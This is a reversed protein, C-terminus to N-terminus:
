CETKLIYKSIYKLQEAYTLNEFSKGELDVHSQMIDSRSAKRMTSKNELIGIIPYQGYIDEVSYMYLIRSNTGSIQKAVDYYKSAVLNSKISYSPAAEKIIESVYYLADKSLRSSVYVGRKLADETYNIAHTDLEEKIDSKIISKVRIKDEETVSTNMLKSDANLEKWTNEVINSLNAGLENDIFMNDALNDSEAQNVRIFKIKNTNVQKTTYNASNLIMYPFDESFTTFRETKKLNAYAINSNTKGTTHLYITKDDREVIRLLEKQKGAVLYKITNDEFITVNRAFDEKAEIAATYLKGLTPSLKAVDFKVLGKEDSFKGLKKAIAYHMADKHVPNARVIESTKLFDTFFQEKIDIPLITSVTKAGFRHGEELDLYRVLEWQFQSYDSTPNEKYQLVPVKSEQTPEWVFSNLAKFGLTMTQMEGSDSGLKNHLELRGSPSVTLGGMLKDLYPNKGKIDNIAYFKKVDLFKNVIIQKFATTGSVNDEVIPDFIEYTNMPNDLKDDAYTTASAIYLIIENRVQEALEVKNFETVQKLEISLTDILGDFEKSYRLLNEKIQYDAMYYAQIASALHPVNDLIGHLQFIFDEQIPMNKIDELTPYRDEPLTSTDFVEDIGADLRVFEVPAVKLKKISGLVRSFSSVGDAITQAYQIARFVQTMVEKARKGHEEDSLIDSINRDKLADQDAQISLLFDLDEETFVPESKAVEETIGLSEATIKYASKRPSFAVLRGIPLQFMKLATLQNFGLMRLGLYPMVTNITLNAVGALNENINDVFIQLLSDNGSLISKGPIVKGAADLEFEQFSDYVHNNFNIGKLERTKEEGNSDTYTTKNNINLNHWAYSLGKTFAATVEIGRAGVIALESARLNDGILSLDLDQRLIELPEERGPFKNSAVEIMDLEIQKASISELAFETNKALVQVFQELIDNRYYIALLEDLKRFDDRLLVLSEQLDSSKPDLALATEAEKIKFETDVLRKSLEEAVKENHTLVEVKEGEYEQETQTYDFLSERSLDLTITDLKLIPQVAKEQAKLNSYETKSPLNKTEGLLYNYSKKLEGYIDNGPIAIKSNILSTMFIKGKQAQSRYRGELLSIELSLEKYEESNEDEILALAEKKNTIDTNLVETTRKAESEEIGNHMKDAIINIDNLKSVLKRSDEKVRRLVESKQEKLNKIETLEKSFYMPKELWSRRGIYLSDVDFDQGMIILYERPTIVINSNLRDEYFGTVQFVSSNHLGSSPIRWGVMDGHKFIPTREGKKLQAKIQKEIHSPLLGHPVMVEATPVGDIGRRVTLQRRKSAIEDVMAQNLGYDEPNVNVGDDLEKSLQTFDFGKRKVRNKLHPSVGTFRTGLDSQVILDTGDFKVQIVEKNIYAVLKNFAAVDVGPYNWVQGIHELSKILELMPQNSNSTLAQKIISVVAKSDDSKFKAEFKKVGRDILYSVAKYLAATEDRNKDHANSLYLLQSFLKSKDKIEQKPNLQFRIDSVPINLDTFQGHTYPHKNELYNDYSDAEKPFGVKTASEPLMIHNGELRMNEAINRLKPFQKELEPTITFLALKGALPYRTQIGGRDVGVFSSIIPKTVSIFNYGIGYGRQFEELTEPLMIGFGDTEEISNPLIKLTHALFEESVDFSRYVDEMLFASNMADKIKTKVDKVLKVKMQPIAGNKGTYALEGGGQMTSSRKVVKGATGYFYNEGLVLQSLFQSNVYNSKIFHYLIPELKEYLEERNFKSNDYKTLEELNKLTNKIEPLATKGYIEELRKTNNSSVITNYLPIKKEIFGDVIDRAHQNFYSQARKEIIELQEKQNQAKEMKDLIPEFFTLNVLKDKNVGKLESLDVRAKYQKYLALLSNNLESHENLKVKAGLIERKDSKVFGFQLYTSDNSSLSSLYSLQFARFYTDESAENKYMVNSEFGGGFTKRTYTWDVLEYIPNARPNSVFHNFKNINTDLLIDPKTLNKSIKTDNNTEILYKITERGKSALTFLYISQGDGDKYSTAEVIDDGVSLATALNDLRTNQTGVFDLISITDVQSTEPDVFLINSIEPAVTRGLLGKSMFMENLVDLSQSVQTDTLKSIPFRYDLFALYSKLLAQNETLNKEYSDITDTYAIIEKANAPKFKKYNTPKTQLNYNTRVSDAGFNIIFDKTSLEEQSLAKVVLSSLMDRRATKDSLSSMKALYTKTNKSSNDQTGYYYNNRNLSSFHRIFSAYIDGFRQQNFMVALEQPSIQITEDKLLSEFFDATSQALHKDTLGRKIVAVSAVLDRDALFNQFEESFINNRVNYPSVNGNNYYEKARELEALATYALRKLDQPLTVATDHKFPAKVSVLTNADIFVHKNEAVKANRAILKTEVGDTTDVVTHPNGSEDTFVFKYNNSTAKKYVDALRNVVATNGKSHEGTDKIRNRLFLIVDTEASMAQVDFLFLLRAYAEQWKMHYRQGNGKKYTIGTLISKLDTSIETKWDRNVSERIHKELMGTAEDEVFLINNELEEVSTDKIAETLRDDLKNGYIYELIDSMNKKNTLYKSTEIINSTVKYVRAAEEIEELMEVYNETENTENLKEMNSVAQLYSDINFTGVPSVFGYSDEAEEALEYLDERADRAVIIARNVESTPDTWFYETSLYRLQEERLIPLDYKSLYTYPRWAENFDYTFKKTKADTLQIDVKTPTVLEVQTGDLMLKTVAKEMMSVATTAHELQAEPTNGFSKLDIMYKINPNFTNTTIFRGNTIDEFYKEITKQSSDLTKFVAKIKDFIRKILTRNEREQFRYALIEELVDFRETNYLEQKHEDESALAQFLTIKDYENLGKDFIQHFLEHALSEKNVSKNEYQLVHSIGDRYFGRALKNGTIKDISALSLFDVTEESANPILQKIYKQAKKLSVRSSAVRETFEGSSRRKKKRRTTKPTPKEEVKTDEKILEVQKDSPAINVESVILTPLISKFGTILNENFFKLEPSNEKLGGKGEELSKDWLEIFESGKKNGIYATNIEGEKSEITQEILPVRVKLENKDNIPTVLNNLAEWSIKKDNKDVSIVDLLETLYVNAFDFTAQHLNFDNKLEKLYEIYNNFHSQMREEATNGKLMLNNRVTQDKLPDIFNTQVFDVDIPTELNTVGQHNLYAVTYEFVRDIIESPNELEALNINYDSNRFKSYIETNSLVPGLSNILKKLLAYRLKDQIRIESILPKAQYKMLVKGSASKFDVQNVLDNDKRVNAKGISRSNRSAQGYGMSIEAGKLELLNPTGQETIGSKLYIKGREFAITTDNSENFADVATQLLGHSINKSKTGIDRLDYLAYRAGTNVDSFQKTNLISGSRKNFYKPNKIYEKTMLTTIEALREDSLNETYRNYTSEGTDKEYRLASYITDYITQQLAELQPEIEEKFNDINDINESYKLKDFNGALLETMTVELEKAGYVNSAIKSILRAFEEKNEVSNIVESHYLELYGLVASMDESLSVRYFDNIKEINLGHKGFMMMKHLEPNEWDMNPLYQSKLQNVDEVLTKLGGIYAEDDLSVRRGITAIEINKKRGAVEIVVYPKGVVQNSNKDSKKAYKISVSKIKEVGVENIVQQVAASVTGTNKRISDAERYQDENETNENVFYEYRTDKGVKGETSTKFKTQLPTYNATAFDGNFELEGDSAISIHVADAAGVTFNYTAIQEPSFAGLDYHKDSNSVGLLRYHPLLEGELDLVEDHTTLTVFTKNGEVIRASNPDKWDDRKISYSRPYAPVINGPTQYVEEFDALNNTVEVVPEPEEKRQNNTLEEAEQEEIKIDQTTSIDKPKELPKNEQVLQPTTFQVSNLIAEMHEKFTVINSSKTLSKNSSEADAFNSVKFNFRKSQLVVLEKARTLATYVQANYDRQPKIESPEEENIIFVQDAQEGKIDNVHRVDAAGEYKDKYKSIDERNFVILLKSKKPYQLINLDLSAIVQEAKFTSQMGKAGPSTIAKTAMVNLDTVFKHVGKFANALKNIEINGSRSSQIMPGIVGIHRVSNLVTSGALAKRGSVGTESIQDPDGVGIVRVRPLNNEIRAKNLEQLKKFFLQTREESIAYMEDFVLIKTDKNVYYEGAKPARMLGDTVKLNSFQKTTLEGNNPLSKTGFLDKNLNITEASTNGMAVVDTELNLATDKSQQTFEARVAQVDTIANTLQIGLSEIYESFENGAAAANDYADKARQYTEVAKKFKFVSPANEAMNGYNQFVKYLEDVKMDKSLKSLQAAETVRNNYIFSTLWDWFRSVLTSAENNSLIAQSELYRVVTEEQIKSKDYTNSLQKVLNPFEEKAANYIQSYLETNHIALVQAFAHGFEHEITETYVNVNEDNSVSVQQGSESTTIFAHEKAGLKALAGEIGYKKSLKNLVRERQAITLPVRKDLADKLLKGRSTTSFYLDQEQQISEIKDAKSKEFIAKNEILGKQAFNDLYVYPSFTEIFPYGYGLQNEYQLAFENEVTDKIYTNVLFEELNKKGSLYDSLLKTHKANLNDGLAHSISFLIEQGLTSKRFVADLEKPTLTDKFAPIFNYLNNLVSDHILEHVVASYLNGPKRLKTSNKNLLIEHTKVNYSAQVGKAGYKIILDDSLKGVFDELLSGRFLIQLDAKNLSHVNKLAKIVKGEFDATSEAQLLETNVLNTKSKLTSKPKTKITVKESHIPKSTDLINGLVDNGPTSYKVDEQILKIREGDKTVEWYDSTIETSSNEIYIPKGTILSTGTIIVSDEYEKETKPQILGVEVEKKKEGTEEVVLNDESIRNDVSKMLKLLLPLFVRTKGTGALGELIVSGNAIDEIQYELSEFYAQMEKLVLPYDKEDYNKIYELGATSVAEELTTAKLVDQIIAHQEQADKKSINEDKDLILKARLLAFQQEETPVFEQNPDVVLQNLSEYFKAINLNSVATERVISLTDLLSMNDAFEILTDIYTEDSLQAFYDGKVIKGFNSSDQKYSQLDLRLQVFDGTNVFKDIPNNTTGWDYGDKKFFKTNDFVVKMESLGNVYLPNEVLASNPVILYKNYTDFIQTRVEKLQNDLETINTMQVLELLRAFKAKIKGINPKASNYEQQLSTSLTSVEQSQTFIPLQNTINTIDLIQSLVNKLGKTQAEKINNLIHNELNKLDENYKKLSDLLEQMEVKKSNDKLDNKLRYTYGKVLENHEKTITELLALDALTEDANMQEISNELDEARNKFYKLQLWDHSEYNKMNGDLTKVREAFMNDVASNFSNQQTTKEGLYAMLPQALVPLIDLVQKITEAQGQSNLYEEIAKSSKAREEISQIESEQEEKLLSTMLEILPSQEVTNFMEMDLRINRNRINDDSKQEDTLYEELTKPTLKHLIEKIANKDESQLASKYEELTEVITGAKPLSKILTDLTNFRTAMVISSNLKESLEASSDQTPDRLLSANGTSEYNAFDELSRFNAALSPNNINLDTSLANIPKVDLAFKDKITQKLTNASDEFMTIEQESEFIESVANTLQEPTTTNEVSKELQAILENYKVKNIGAKVINTYEQTAFPLKEFNQAHINTLGELQEGYLTKLESDIINIAANYTEFTSGKGIKGLLPELEKTKKKIEADLKASDEQFTESDKSLGQQEVTLDKIEQNLSSAAQYDEDKGRLQSFENRRAVATDYKEVYAVGEKVLKNRRVTEDQGYKTLYQSREKLASALGDSPIKFTKGDKDEKLDEATIDESRMQEEIFSNLQQLRDERSFAMKAGVRLHDENKDAFSFNTRLAEQIGEYIDAYADASNMVKSLTAQDQADTKEVKLEEKNAKADKVDAETTNEITDFDAQLHAKLSTRAEEKSDFYDSAMFAYARRGLAKDKLAAKQGEENNFISADLDSATSKDLNDALITNIIKQPDAKVLEVGNADLLPNGESDTQTYTKKDLSLIDKQYTEDVSNILSNHNELQIGHQREGEKYEKFERHSEKAGAWGGMLGSLVKATMDEDETFNATLYANSEWFSTLFGPDEGREWADEQYRASNSQISEEYMEAVMQNKINQGINPKKLLGNKFRKGANSAAKGAGGLYAKTEFASSVTLVAANTYFNQALHPAAEQNVQERPSLQGEKPLTLPLEDYNVGYTKQAIKDRLTTQLGRTESLAENVANVATVNINTLSGPIAGSFSSGKDLFNNVQKVGSWFKNIGAQSAQEAITAEMTPVLEAYKAYKSAGMLAKTGKAAAGAIGAGTLYASFSYAAVDAADEAWFKTSAMKQLWDGENYARNGYTKFWGEKLSEDTEDAWKSIPNDLVVSLDGMALAAPAYIATGVSNALKPIISLTRGALGKGTAEFIGQESELGYELEQQDRRDGLGTPTFSSELKALENPDVGSVIQQPAFSKGRAAARQAFERKERLRQRRDDDSTTEGTYIDFTDPM